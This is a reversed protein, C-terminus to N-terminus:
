RVSLGSYRKLFPQKFNSFEKELLLFVTTKLSGQIPKDLLSLCKILLKMFFKLPM